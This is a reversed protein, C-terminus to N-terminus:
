KKHINLIKTSDLNHEAEQKEAETNLNVVPITVHAKWEGDRKRLWLTDYFDKIPTTKHYITYASTDDVINTQTIKIKAPTDSEIYEPDIISVYYQAKVLTTAQTEETAYRYAKDVNYNAMATAYNKAVREVKKEESQSCATLIVITTAVALLQLTRRM